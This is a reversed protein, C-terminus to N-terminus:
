EDQVKLLKAEIKLFIKTLKERKFECQRVDYSLRGLKGLQKKFLDLKFIRKQAKKMQAEYEMNEIRKAEEKAHLQENTLSPKSHSYRCIKFSRAGDM